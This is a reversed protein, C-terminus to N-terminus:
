AICLKVLNLIKSETMDLSNLRDFFYEETEDFSTQKYGEFNEALVTMYPRFQLGTEIMEVTVCHEITSMDFNHKGNLLTDCLEAINKIAQNKLTTAPNM